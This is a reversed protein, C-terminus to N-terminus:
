LCTVPLSPVTSSVLSGFLLLILILLCILFQFARLRVLGLWVDSSTFPTGGLVGSTLDYEDLPEMEKALVEPEFGFLRKSEQKREKGDQM